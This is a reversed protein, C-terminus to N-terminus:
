LAGSLGLANRLAVTQTVAQRLYKSTGASKVTVTKDLVNLTPTASIMSDSGVNNLSRVVVGLQLSLIRPPAEAPVKARAADAAKLYEDMTMYRYNLFAGQNQDAVGLLVRFYDARRIIVQENGAVNYGTITQAKAVYRGADCVLMLPGTENGLPVPDAMLFYRQVIYTGATVDAATIVNGECDYTGAQNARYQIVLQDSKVDTNSLGNTSYSLLAAATTKPTGDANKIALSDTRVVIGGYESKDNIISQPADLNAKRIDNTLFGLGLNGNDQLEAAGRQMNLSIQGTMLLQTAAAVVLLGLTIAIMLEILTFGKQLSLNM